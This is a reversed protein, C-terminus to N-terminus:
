LLILDLRFSSLSVWLLRLAIHSHLLWCGSWLVMVFKRLSLVFCRFCTNRCYLRRQLLSSRKSFSVWDILPLLNLAMFELSLFKVRVFSSSWMFRMLVFVSCCKVFISVFLLCSVSSCLNVLFSIWCFVTWSM